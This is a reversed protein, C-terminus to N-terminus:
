GARWLGVQEFSEDPPRSRIGVSQVVGLASMVVLMFSGGYSLLPLPLGTIPLLGVTMSINVLVHGLILAAIGVCLLRGLKDHALLGIRVASATVAAFLALVVISGCFGKEEAIVCFIFDTPAVSRPLFRLINQTGNLFGKGWAGGSGVAIESQRKNWGSGLPDSDPKFFVVLRDRQYASAGVQRMIREQRAPAMGLKEPLFLAGVFLGAALLGTGALAGLARWPVGAAYMMLFTMPVLLMATGLDPEKLILLWPVGVIALVTALPRAHGLDVGPRSLRRALLLITAIKALESPQIQFGPLDLWRQAGYIKRGVVLVLVLLALSVGYAWWAVRRLHRYDLAAFAQYCVMGALAWLIQRRYLGSSAQEQAVYGASYVFFVGITVLAAVAGTMLWNQRKLLAVSQFAAGV